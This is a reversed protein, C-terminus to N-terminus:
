VFTGTCTGIYKRIRNKGKDRIMTGARLVQVVCGDDAFVWDGVEGSRWRERVEIDSPVEDMSEFVTHNIKNVKYHRM